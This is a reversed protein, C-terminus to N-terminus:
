EEIEYTEGNIIIPAPSGEVAKAIQERVPGAIKWTGGCKNMLAMHKVGELKMATTWEMHCFSCEFRIEQRYTDVTLKVSEMGIISQCFAKWTTPDM